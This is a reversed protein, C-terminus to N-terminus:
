DAEQTHTFRRKSYRCRQLDCNQCPWFHGQKKIPHRYKTNSGEYQFTCMVAIMSSPLRENLFQLISIENGEKQKWIQGCFILNDIHKSNLLFCTLCIVPKQPPHYKWRLLPDFTKHSRHYCANCTSNLSYISWIAKIERKVIWNSRWHWRGHWM